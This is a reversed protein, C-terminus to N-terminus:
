NFLITLTQVLMSWLPYETSIWHYHNYYGFLGNWFSNGMLERCRTKLATIKHTHIQNFKWAFLFMSKSFRMSLQCNLMEFPGRALINLLHGSARMMFELTRDVKTELCITSAEAHIEYVLPHNTLIKEQTYSNRLLGNRKNSMIKSAYAFVFLFLTM